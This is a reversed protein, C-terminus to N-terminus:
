IFRDYSNNNVELKEEGDVIKQLHKNSGDRICHFGCHKRPDLQKMVESRKKGFWIEKFSQKNIDGIRMNLNGRHYPCVYVGSPSVVTRMDAVLCKDYNKPQINDGKLAEELTYPAIVQFTSSNLKNVKSLQENTIETVKLDQSQLYHMMDFAPKVEFYDCGIEKALIGAKEIDVANTGNFKGNKDFKSLLLFSFGLIGKKKKAFEKMNSIVIDFQSKGSIHPRFEQFVEPSGADVSVRLWSVNEACVDLHKKMLTGNTTVGTHIDRKGFADVINGFEKHAMPEGGGILVVAKVGAEKFEDALKLLREPEIGGQNLLNASICDHCALNCATTPDLEIVWPGYEKKNIFLSKIREQVNDQKLKDVLSLARQKAM